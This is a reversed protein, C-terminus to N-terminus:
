TERYCNMLKKKGVKKRKAVMEELSPLEGKVMCLYSFYRYDIGEKLCKDLNSQNHEVKQLVDSKNALTYLDILSEHMHRDHKTSGVIRDLAEFVRFQKYHEIPFDQLGEILKTARTTFTSLLFHKTM